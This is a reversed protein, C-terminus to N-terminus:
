HTYTRCHINLLINVAVTLVLATGTEPQDSPIDQSIVEETNAIKAPVEANEVVQNRPSSQASSDVVVESRPSSAPVSISAAPAVKPSETVRPTRPSKAKFSPPKSLAPPKTLLMPPPKVVAEALKAQSQTMAGAFSRADFLWQVHKLGAPGDNIGASTSFDYEGMDVGSSPDDPFTKVDFQGLLVRM